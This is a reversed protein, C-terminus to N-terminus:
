YINRPINSIPASAGSGYGGTNGTGGGGGGNFTSSWDVGALAGAASGFGSILPAMTSVQMAPPVYTPTAKIPEVFIRDPGLEPKPLDPIAEPRIMMSAKAQMDAAYKQLDIQRMNRQSQVLANEVSADSIARNRGIGALRSQIRKNRSVGAQGMQAEGQAQLREEMSAQKGFADEVLIDETAAQEAEYADIAAISNFILQNETNEVSRGYREVVSKYEYDRIAQNYKWNRLSTEYQFEKSNFYNQKEAAFAEANYKNTADAAEKAAAKQEAEIRAARANQKRAQSSGMIGGLVAMGASIGAFVGM